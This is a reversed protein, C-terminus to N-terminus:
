QAPGILIKKVERPGRLGRFVVLVMGSTTGELSAQHSAAGQGILRGLVDYLEYTGEADFRLSGDIVSILSPARRSDSIGVQGNVVTTTDRVLPYSKPHGTQVGRTKVLFLDTQGIGGSNSIGLILISSDSTVRISRLEEDEPLGFSNGELFSGSSDIEYVHFDKGGEGYTETTVGVLLREDEGECTKIGRDDKNNANVDYGFYKEWILVGELSVKLVYADFDSTFKSNSTGTIILTSDSVFLISSALDVLSDGYTEEMELSGASSYYQLLVEEQFLPAIANGVVFVGDNYLVLDTYSWEDWDGLTELQIENIFTLATDYKRVKYNEVEGDIQEQYLVAVGQADCDIAIPLLVGPLNHYIAEESVLHTDLRDIRWGYGNGFGEYMQSLLFFHQGNYSADKLREIGGTGLTSFTFANLAPSADVMYIDSQGNGVNGTSGFLFYRGNVEFLEVADEEGITGLTVNFITDQAFSHMSLVIAIATLIRKM